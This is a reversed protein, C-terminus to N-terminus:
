ISLRVLKFDQTLSMHKSFKIKEVVWGGGGVVDEVSFLDAHCYMLPDLRTDILPFSIKFPASGKAIVEVTGYVMLCGFYLPEPTGDVGAMSHGESLFRYDSETGVICYARGGEALEFETGSILCIIAMSIHDVQNDWDKECVAISQSRLLLKLEKHFEDIHFAPKSHICEIVYKLAAFFAGDMYGQLVKLRCVGAQKDLAFHDEIKKIMTKKNLGYKSKLKKESALKTQSLFLRYIYSPFAEGLNLPRSQAAYEKFFRVSDGLATLSEQALGRDRSDYHAVFNAVEFFVSKRNSFPRLKMLLNDVDNADFAGAQIRSVIQDLKVREKLPM